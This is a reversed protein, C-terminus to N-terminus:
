NEKKTVWPLRVSTYGRALSAKYYGEEVLGVESMVKLLKMLDDAKLVKDLYLHFHGETSSPVLACPFDLDIVPKHNDFSDWRPEVGGEVNHMSTVVDCDSETIEIGARVDAIFLHDIQRYENDESCSCPKKKCEACTDLNIKARVNDRTFEPLARPYAVKM